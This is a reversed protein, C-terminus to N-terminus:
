IQMNGILGTWGYLPWLSFWKMISIGMQALVLPVALVFLALFLTQFYNKRWKSLFLVVACILGAAALQSLVALIFFLLLPLNVPFSGYQPLNQIGALIEGMPYFSSISAWRFLWPLLTIAFCAATCVMWKQRIIRKRGLKSASLLNWLGKNNEMAMVNAFAFSFCLSLLLLNILFDDDMQGFLYLYGTDYIFVGGDSLIREYQTQIQQFWPYFALESYWPEKMSDAANESISGDAAMQDIQEIRAFAQDYRAQEAKVTNEKEPTLHGELSRMMQQYYQEGASPTYDKGFANGGLLIAFVLLILLARNAILIKYGEHRFLSSHPHFPLHFHWSARTKNLPDSYRFLLLVAAIGIFLLFALLILICGARSFPFGMIDLNLYTGFLADTRLMSFYSLQKLLCLRSGSPIFAYLIWNLGLFGIGVLPPIFSRSSCLACATLLLGLLFVAGIKALVCLFLFAALSLPFSSEIYPSLSHLSASLNGLGATSAVYILNSGYLLLCIVGGHILVATIRAGMDAWLGRKTSRTVAFLGKGKEESILQGVFLFVSLLLLLDTAPSELAMTMGKSPFWLINGASLGAHDAASKAINRSGFNEESASSQFISIGGLQSSHKQVSALYDDYGSVASIEDYLEDLLTREATLSDTYILYDGARYLKEYKKYLDSNNEKLQKALSDGSQSGQSYLSRVQEVLSLGEAQEKLGLIYTLKEQETMDSIDRYVAKYASLPPEDKGPQNLYWLLFLNVLLLLLMLSLFSGKKWVKQLEFGILATM